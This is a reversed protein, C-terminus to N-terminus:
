WPPNSFFMYAMLTCSLICALAVAAVAIISVIAIVNDSANSKKPEFREAQPKESKAEDM